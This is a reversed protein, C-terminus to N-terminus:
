LNGSFAKDLVSPLFADLETATEAQLKKLADVQAQLRDLESVIRRQKPLSPIRCPLGAVIRSNVGERTAGRIKESLYGEVARSAQITWHIFRPDVQHKDLAVRIIHYNILWGSAHAPVVCCRGVTGMRAFLVDGSSIEYRSLERAKTESVFKLIPPTSDVM